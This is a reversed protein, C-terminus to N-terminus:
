RITIPVPSVAVPLPMTDFVVEVRQRSRVAVGNVQGPSFQALMFAERAAQELPPPLLPEDAAIHRVRGQEDIFLSLIGAYRGVPMDREPAAVVVPTVAQPPTSLLPRPVFSDREGADAWPFPYGANATDEALTDVPMQAALPAVEDAEAEVPPTARRVPAPAVNVHPAAPRGAEPGLSAAMAGVIPAARLTVTVVGPQRAAPRKGAQPAGWVALLAVHLGVSCVLPLAYKLVALRIV